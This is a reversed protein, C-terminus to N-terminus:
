GTLGAAIVGEPGGGFHFLPCLRRQDFLFAVNFSKPLGALIRPMLSGSAGARRGADLRERQTLIPLLASGERREASPKDATLVGDHVFAVDRV